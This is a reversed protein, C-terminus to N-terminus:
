GPVLNGAQQRASCFSNGLSSTQKSLFSLSALLPALFHHTCAVHALGRIFREENSSTGKFPPTCLCSPLGPPKIAEGLICCQHLNGSPELGPGMYTGQLQFHLKREQWLLRDTQSDAQM